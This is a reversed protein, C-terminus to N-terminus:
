SSMWTLWIGSFLKKTGVCGDLFIVLPVYIKREQTLQLRCSVTDNEAAVHSTVLSASEPLLQSNRLRFDLLNLMLHSGRVAMRYYRKSEQLTGIKRRNIKRTTPSFIDLRGSRLRQRSPFATQRTQM